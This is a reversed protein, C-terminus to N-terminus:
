SKINSVKLMKVHRFHHTARSVDFIQGNTLYVTNDVLLAPDNEKLELLVADQANLFDAYIVRDAFGIALKQDNRLYNYISKQIINEDLYVVLNKRFYSDEVSFPHDDVLRLRKVYYVPTGVPCKMREAVEENATTQEFALARTEVKRGSFDSTLGQLKELNVYDSNYHDRVFVGSGQVQYVYGKNVLIEIAKRVTNRSIGYKTAYEDETLLKNTHQYVHNVIDTEIQEAVQKYKPAM